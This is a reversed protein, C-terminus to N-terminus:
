WCTIPVQKQKDLYSLLLHLRVNTFKLWGICCLLWAANNRTTVAPLAKSEKFM